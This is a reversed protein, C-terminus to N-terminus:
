LKRKIYGAMSAVRKVIRKIYKPTEYIIRRYYFCLTIQFKKIINYDHYEVLSIVEKCKLKYSLDIWYAVERKDMKNRYKYLEYVSTRYRYHNAKKLDPYIRDGIDIAMVNRITGVLENGSTWISGQMVQRYYMTVDPIYYIGGYVIASLFIMHDNYVYDLLEVPLKSILSARFVCANASFFVREWCYFKDIEGPQLGFAYIPKVSQEGKKDCYIAMNSACVVYKEHEKKDLVDVQKQFKDIDSFFDDGDLFCFYEGKVHKLLELRLRSARTASVNDTKNNRDVRILKVNQLHLYKENLLEWTGDDSGDDGIVVDFDFTCKQKLVSSVAEEIYAKQNYATILATLRIM